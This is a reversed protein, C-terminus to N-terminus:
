NCYALSVLAGACIILAALTIRWKLPRQALAFVLAAKLLTNSIAALTIAVAATNMAGGQKVFDAMSLAVPDVDTLGAFFSILYLGQGQYYKRALAVVLLVVSFLLAVKIASTLSFPNRLSVQHETIPARLTSLLFILAALGTLVALTVLPIILARLLPLYIVAVIVAIRGVMILWALLIGAALAPVAVPDNEDRSRRALSLTVVTSSVLGGFFGTLPVGRKSGLWRTAVYGVLSLGSILIVLWWLRYPNIANWPDITRNPL